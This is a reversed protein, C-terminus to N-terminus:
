RGDRVEVKTVKKGIINLVTDHIKRPNSKYIKSIIKSGYQKLLFRIKYVVANELMKFEEESGFLYLENRLKILDRIYQAIWPKEYNV